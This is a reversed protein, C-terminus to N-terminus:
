TAKWRKMKAEAKHEQILAGFYNETWEKLDDNVELEMGTYMKGTKFIYENVFEKFKFKDKKSVLGNDINEEIEEALIYPEQCNNIYNIIMTGYKETEYAREDLDFLVIREEANITLLEYGLGLRERLNEKNIHIIEDFIDSLNENEWEGFQNFFDITNKLGSINGQNDYDFNIVNIEVNDVFNTWTQKELNFEDKIIHKGDTTKYEGM